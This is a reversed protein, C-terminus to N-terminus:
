ARRAAATAVPANQLSVNEVVLVPTLGLKVAIDGGLTLARGTREQVAQMLQPKLANFDYRSLLVYVVVVAVGSVSMVGILLWKWRM